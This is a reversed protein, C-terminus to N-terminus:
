KNLHKTFGYQLFGGGVLGGVFTYYNSPLQKGIIGCVLGTICTIIALIFFCFNMMATRSLFQRKEDYFFTKVFRKFINEKKPKTACTCLKPEVQKAM